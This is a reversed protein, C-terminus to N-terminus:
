RRDFVQVYKWLQGALPPEPPILWVAHYALTSQAAAACTQFYAAIAETENSYPTSITAGPSNEIGQVELVTWIPYPNMPM